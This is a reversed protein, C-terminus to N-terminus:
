PASMLRIGKLDILAGRIAGQSRMSIEVPGAPLELIGVAAKRYDDWAGTGAVKATLREAGAQLVFTNGASGDECAWELEVLYKARKPAEVTWVAQDDESSWYGLNGYQKELVLTKGYIAANAPLLRLTGQKDAKVLTPENGPFQKRKASAINGRLFALLDAMDQPPIEKEVGEPMASKGTSYLEDLDARLIDHRKGDAAAISISTSTEGALVGNLSVGAKTVAVYEVFRTEVNRNPDLIAALLGDTSKDAVSALDPGVAQGVGALQHCVACSKAFVKAGRAQAEPRERERSAMGLIAARYSDIVKARDADISGQLAKEARARLGPGTAATLLKQRRVADLESPAIRRLELALLVTHIGDKRTLFVDIAQSRLAPTFSKFQKMLNEPVFPDPIRVLTQLAALQLEDAHHPSLLGFLADRDQNYHEKIRGLLRVTQIKLPLPTKQALASERASQLFSEFRELPDRFRPTMLEKKLEELSHGRDEFIQLLSNVQAIKELSVDKSVGVVEATLELAAAKNGFGLAMRILANAAPLPKKKDQCHWGLWTCFDHFNEKTLSSHVAAQIFRDDEHALAMAALWQGVFRHAGLFHAFQQRVHPDSDKEAKMLAEAEEKSLLAVSLECCLVAHRRVAPNKDELSALLSKEPVRGLIGHLTMLAHLRPLPRPCDALLKELDKVADKHKGTVLLLQAMDRQWGNPSDLAAVLEKPTLKDLRPITRPKKDKPYVRYIRGKDHGSRLDLKKQWDKPIWEPHEIVLRYMDAVWLAGDPGTQIMTPRFWNDTSALFESEQEDPARQSTFTVGKPKMIERHILNHVPESVFCNGIFDPGFLDDRYVITSCASTIHNLRNFDNFRPLAKSIPYIPAPGPKVSVNVRPDPPLLHPNRKLYRDELVFHFMPNSNNNGFWNGWDDRSRGFQTQGTVAEFLGEDPKLRFDRGSINVGEGGVGRGSPSPLQKSEGGVGRGGPVLPTVLKVMGGSDGNAGYLWNDLGWVLGNVRHQQNGEKFGTFLIVKHDAKGDGDTDEAYFIDPACTIIVGKGWPTVGTPYGLGDLFLTAKDYQPKQENSKQLFKVKGGFKGKGDVGLPYDGMEVVWLKGDPGFAFAIPDMVLPEAAMLEVQFGPRVQICKLSEEPSKPGPMAAPPDAQLSCLFPLISVSILKLLM